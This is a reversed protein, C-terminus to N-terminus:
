PPSLTSPLTARRQRRLRDRRSLVQVHSWTAADLAHYDSLQGEYPARSRPTFGLAALCGRAARNEPHCIGWVTRLGLSVFAHRLLVEGGSLALGSGWHEPTLRSGLEVDDARLGFAENDPSAQVPMLSFWGAFREAGDDAPVACRWIGLGPHRRYFDGLCFAFEEAWRAEHLPQEDPLLARVRPDAHLRQIDASDGAVFERLLLRDCRHSFSTITTM